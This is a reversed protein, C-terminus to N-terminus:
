TNNFISQLGRYEKKNIKQPRKPANIIAPFSMVTNIM